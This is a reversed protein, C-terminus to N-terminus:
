GLRASGFQLAFLTRTKSQNATKKQYQFSHNSLFFFLRFPFPLLLHYDNRESKRVPHIISINSPMAHCPQNTPASPRVFPRSTPQGPRSPVLRSPFVISFTHPYHFIILTLNSVKRKLKITNLSEAATAIQESSEISWSKHQRTLWGALNFPHSTLFLLFRSRALSVLLRTGSYVHRALGIVEEEEYCLDNPSVPIMLLPLPLVHEILM